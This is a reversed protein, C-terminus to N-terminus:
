NMPGAARAHGLTDYTGLVIVSGEFWGRVRYTSDARRVGVASLPNRSGRVTSPCQARQSTSDRTTALPEAVALFRPFM